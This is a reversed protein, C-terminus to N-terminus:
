RVVAERVLPTVLARRLPAERGYRNRYEKLATQYDDIIEAKTVSHFEDRHLRLTGVYISRDGPRVDFEVPGPILLETQDIAVTSRDVARHSFNMTVSGRVMYRQNAPISIFWTQELPPNIANSTQDQYVPEDSLFMIARGIYHDKVNLPDVGMDIQQEEARLPPVLEIRGVLLVSDAGLEGLSAPEGHVTACGSLAATVIFAFVTTIRTM